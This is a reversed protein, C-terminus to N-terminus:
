AGCIRPQDVLRDSRTLEILLEEILEAKVAKYDQNDWLNSLELPDNELDFLLGDGNQAFLTVKYRERIITRTRYVPGPHWDEDYEMFAAKVTLEQGERLYPKLSRGPLGLRDAHRYGRYDLSDEDIGAYDMITPAFDLLSVVSKSTNESINEVPDYWIFPIRLLEEYPWVSKGLLNHTGLYEGHDSMFVVVTNDALGKDELSDMVRGINDDIHSIMGYTQAIVERLDEEDFGTQSYRNRQEVLHKLDDKIKNWNGPLTIQEPDYMESYPKCAAFPMHPDPFSCWLFFPQEQGEEKIFDICRDAIWNNYHLEAPVEMRWSGLDEISQYGNEKQYKDFIGPHNEDLWNQYDGFCSSVHAGVFDTTQFGYYDEPLSDIEGSRWLERDEWSFVKKGDDRMSGFPQLHLKGVSHTRYGNEVLVEPITPIKEPLKTGNTLCGHQRPTLGTIMTARSPMCVSNNCYARQFTCGKDALKDINPTKLDPNDNCGLSFSQMEDTVFILFNPKQCGTTQEKETKFSM